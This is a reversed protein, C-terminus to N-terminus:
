LGENRAAFELTKKELLLQRLSSAEERVTLLQAKLLANEHELLTARLAIQDERQKRADRSKKAAQNNRRRREYYKDDKQADPIPKKEGRQRRYNQHLLGGCPPSLPNPKPVVCDAQLVNYHNYGFVHPRMLSPSGDLCNDDPEALNAACEPSPIHPLFQKTVFNIEHRAHETVPTCLHV